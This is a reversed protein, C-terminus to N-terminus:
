EEKLNQMHEYYGLAVRLCEMAIQLKTTVVGYGIWLFHEGSEVFVCSVFRAKNNDIDDFLGKARQRAAANRINAARGISPDEDADAM